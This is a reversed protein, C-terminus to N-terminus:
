LPAYDKRFVPVEKWVRFGVAEYLAFAEDRYNDTEVYVTRVGRDQLRQIGETLIARALGLRRYDEHVGLPEIQGAPAGNYGSETFWCICFAALGGDPAEVVLDLEPQYTPKQLVRQRWETTMSNSQFVARHLAVYADVEASGALPRITFGNSLGPVMVPTFSRAMLVKSWPNESVCSQDAFGMAAFDATRSQERFCNTFWIPRGFPTDLVAKAQGDAWELILPHLEPLDTRYVYDLAWFPTQLIAWALLEGQEDHWLTVNDPRDFAWSSFRYPLDILHLQETPMACALRLMAQQDTIGTYNRRVINM